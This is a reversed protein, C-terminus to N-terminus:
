VRPSNWSTGRLPRDEAVKKETGRGVYESVNFCVSILEPEDNEELELSDSVM